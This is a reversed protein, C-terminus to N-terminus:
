MCVYVCLCLVRAHVLPFILIGQDVLLEKTQPMPTAQGTQPFSAGLMQDQDDTLIFIINPQKAAGTVRLVCLQLVILVALVFATM